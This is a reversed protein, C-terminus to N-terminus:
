IYNYIFEWARIRENVTDIDWNVSEVLIALSIDSCQHESYFNWYIYKIAMLFRNRAEVLCDEDLETQDVSINVDILKM